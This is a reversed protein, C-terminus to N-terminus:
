ALNSKISAAKAVSILPVLSSLWPAPSFHMLGKVTTVEYITLESPTAEAQGLSPSLNM